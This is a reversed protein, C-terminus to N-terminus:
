TIPIADDGVVIVAPFRIVTVVIPGNARLEASVAKAELVSPSATNRVALPVNETVGGDAEPVATVLIPITWILLPVTVELMM